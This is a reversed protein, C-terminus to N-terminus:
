QITTACAKISIRVLVRHLICIGMMVDHPSYVRALHDLMALVLRARDDAVFQIRLSMTTSLFGDENTRVPITEIRFVM